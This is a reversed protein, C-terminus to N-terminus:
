KASIVTREEKRKKAKKLTMTTPRRRTIGGKKIKPLKYGNTVPQEKIDDYWRM